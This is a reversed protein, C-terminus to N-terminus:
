QQENVLYGSFYNFGGASGDTNRLTATAETVLLWVTTNKEIKAVASGSSCTSIDYDVVDFAGIRAGDAVINVAGWDGKNVCLGATFYYIGSVPVRYKGNSVDYLGGEDLLIKKFILTEGVSVSTGDLWYVSFAYSSRHLKASIFILSQFKFYM